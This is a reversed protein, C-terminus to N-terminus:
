SPMMLRCRAPRASILNVSFKLMGPWMSDMFGEDVFKNVIKLVNFSIVEIRDCHSFQEHTGYVPSAEHLVM